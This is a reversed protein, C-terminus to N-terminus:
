SYKDGFTRELSLLSGSAFFGVDHDNPPFLVWLPEKWITKMNFKEFSTEILNDSDKLM